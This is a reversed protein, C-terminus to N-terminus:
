AVKAPTVVRRKISEYLNVIPELEGLLSEMEVEDMDGRDLRGQEKRAWRRCAILDARTVEPMPEDPESERRKKARIAARLESKSWGKSVAKELWGQAVALDGDSGAWAEWHHAWSLGEQRCSPQYFRSLLRWNWITCVEVKALEAYRSAYRVLKKERARPDANDQREAASESEACEIQFECYENAFDGWWWARCGEVTQLFAGAEILTVEDRRDVILATKTFRCGEVRINSELVKALNRESM